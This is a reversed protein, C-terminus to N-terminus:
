KFQRYILKTRNLSKPHNKKIEVACFVFQRNVTVSIGKYNIKSLCNSTKSNRGLQNAAALKLFGNQLGVIHLLNFYAGIAASPNGKEIQYLTTRGSDAREAVQM